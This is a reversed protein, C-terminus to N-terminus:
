GSRRRLDRLSCVRARISSHRPASEPAEHALEAQLQQMSYLAGRSLILLWGSEDRVVAETLRAVEKPVGILNLGRLKRISERPVSKLTIERQALLTVVKGDPTELEVIRSGEARELLLDGFREELCLPDDGMWDESPSLTRVRMANVAFRHEGVVLVLFTELSMTSAM